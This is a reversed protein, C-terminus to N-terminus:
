CQQHRSYPDACAKGVTLEASAPILPRLPWHLLGVCNLSRCVCALARESQRGGMARLGSRARRQWCRVDAGIRILVVGRGDLRSVREVWHEVAHPAVELGAPSHPTLLMPGSFRFLAFVLSQLLAAPALEHNQSSIDPCWPEPDRISPERSAGARILGLELAEAIHISGLDGPLRAVTEIKTSKRSPIRPWSRRFSKSRAPVAPM